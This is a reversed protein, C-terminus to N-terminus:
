YVVNLTDLREKEEPTLKFFNDRIVLIEMSGKEILDWPCDELLNHECDFEKLSKMKSLAPIELLKNFGVGLRELSDMRTMWEPLFYIQNHHIYLYKLQKLNRLTDPIVEIENFSLYIQELSDLNGIFDPIVKIHNKYFDIERLSTLQAIPEPIESFDNEYFIINRLNKMEAFSAPLSSIKNRAMVLTKCQLRGVNDPLKEIGNDTMLLRKVKALHRIDTKSLKLQNYNLNIEDLSDLSSVWAPIHKIQNKELNLRKLNKYRKINHPIRNLKKNALSLEEVTYDYGRLTACSPLLLTLALSLIIYKTKMECTYRQM